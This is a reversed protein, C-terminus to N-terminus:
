KIKKKKLKLPRWPTKGSPKQENKAQQPSKSIALFNKSSTPENINNKNTTTNDVKPKKSTKPTSNPPPRKRLRRTTITIECLLDQIADEIMVSINPVSTIFEPLIM